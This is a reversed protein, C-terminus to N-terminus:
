SYKDVCNRSEFELAAILFGAISWFLIDHIYNYYCVEFMSNLYYFLLIIVCANITKKNIHQKSSYRRIRSILIFIIMIHLLFGIIGSGMLTELWINHAGTAGIFSSEDYYLGRGCIPNKLFENWSYEWVEGRRSTLDNFSNTGLYGNFFAVMFPATFLYILLVVNCALFILYAVARNGKKEIIKIRKLITYDLMILLLLLGGRSKLFIIALVYVVLKLIFTITKENRNMILNIVAPGIVTIILNSAAFPIRIYSKFIVLNFAIGERQVLIGTVIVQICLILAFCEYMWLVTNLNTKLNRCILYALIATDAFILFQYHDEIAVRNLLYSSVIDWCLKVFLLIAIGDVKIKHSFFLWGAIYVMLFCLHILWKTGPFYFVKLVSDFGDNSAVFAFILLTCLWYINSLNRNVNFKISRM